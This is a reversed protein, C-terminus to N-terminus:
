PHCANTCSSTRKTFTTLVFPNKSSSTVKPEPRPEPRRTVDPTTVNAPELLDPMSKAKAKSAANSAFTVKKKAKRLAPPAPSPPQAAVAAAAPAAGVGDLRPPTKALFHRQQTDDPSGVDNVLCELFTADDIEFSSLSKEPSAAHDAAHARGFWSTYRHTWGAFSPPVVIDCAASAAPRTRRSKTASMTERRRCDLKLTPRQILRKRRGAGAPSRVSEFFPM